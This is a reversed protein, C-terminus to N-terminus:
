HTQLAQKYSRRLTEDSSIAYNSATVGPPLAVTHDTNDYLLLRLSPISRCSAYVTQLAKAAEEITYCHTGTEYHSIGLSSVALPKQSQLSLFQLAFPLQLSVEKPTGHCSVGLLDYDSEKPAFSFAYQVDEAPLSWILQVSPAEQRFIAAAQAWNAQYVLRNKALSPTYPYLNVYVDGQAQDFQKALAHLKELSPFTEDNQSRLTVVATKGEKACSRLFPLLTNDKDTITLGYCGHTALQEGKWITDIRDSLSLGFSLTTTTPAPMAAGCFFFSFVFCVLWLGIRMGFM